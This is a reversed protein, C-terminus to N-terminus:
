PNENMASTKAAIVKKPEEVPKRITTQTMAFAFLDMQMMIMTM